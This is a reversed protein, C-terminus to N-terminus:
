DLSIRPDPPIHSAERQVTDEEQLDPASGELCTHPTLVAIPQVRIQRQLLLSSLPEIGTGQPWITVATPGGGRQLVGNSTLLIPARIPFHMDRSHVEPLSETHPKPFCDQGEAKVESQSM